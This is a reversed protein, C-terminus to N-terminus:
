QHTNNFDALAHNGTSTTHILQSSWTGSLSTIDPSPPEGYWWGAYDFSNRMVSSPYSLSDLAYIGYTHEYGPAADAIHNDTIDPAADSIYICYGQEGGTNWIGGSISCNTIKASCLNSVQIGYTWGSNGGFITCVSIEPTYAGKCWIGMSQGTVDANGPDITCGTVLASSSQLEVGFAETGRQSYGRGQVVVNSITPSAQLCLIGCHYGTSSGLTIRVGDIRTARTVTSDTCNLTRIPNTDSVTIGQTDTDIIDSVTTTPSRTSFDLAYGGYLSVDKTINAVSVVSPNVACSASYTGFAVRVEAPGKGGTVYLSKALDIGSQIKDLPHLVTGAAGPAGPKQANDPASVCVGQFVDWSFDFTVINGGTAVTVTLTKGTGATWAVAPTSGGNLVLTDNTLTTTSWSPTVSGLTGTLTVSAPDMSRPFTFTIPEHATITAGTAPTVTPRNAETALSKMETLIADTCSLLAFGATCVAVIAAARLMRAARRSSIGIGVM